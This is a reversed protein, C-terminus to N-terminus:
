HIRNQVGTHTNTLPTCIAPFCLCLFVEGRFQYNNVGIHLQVPLVARSRSASLQPCAEALLLLMLASCHWPNQQNDLSVLTSWGRGGHLEEKVCRVWRFWSSPLASVETSCQELSVKPQLVGTICIVIILWSSRKRYVERESKLDGGGRKGKCTSRHGDLLEPQGQHPHLVYSRSRKVLHVTEECPVCVETSKRYNRQTHPHRRAQESLM